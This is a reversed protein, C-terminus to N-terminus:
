GQLAQAGFMVGRSAKIYKGKCINTRNELVDQALEQALIVVEEVGQQAFAVKSIHESFLYKQFVFQDPVANVAFNFAKNQHVRVHLFVFDPDVGKLVKAAVGFV